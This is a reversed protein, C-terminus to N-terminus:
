WYDYKAITYNNHHEADTNINPSAHNSTRNCDCTTINTGTKAGANTGASTRASTTQETYWDWEAKTVTYVVRAMDRLGVHMMRYALELGGGSIYM